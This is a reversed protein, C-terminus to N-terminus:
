KFKMYVWMLGLNMPLKWLQLNREVVESEFVKLSKQCFKVSNNRLHGMHKFTKAQSFVFDWPWFNLKFMPFPFKFSREDTETVSSCSLITNYKLIKGETSTLLIREILIITKINYLAQTSLIKIWTQWGEMHNMCSSNYRYNYWWIRSTQQVFERQLLYTFVFTAHNKNELSVYLHCCNM